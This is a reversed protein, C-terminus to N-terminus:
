LQVKILHKQIGDNYVVEVLSGKLSRDKALIKKIGDEFKKRLEKQNM